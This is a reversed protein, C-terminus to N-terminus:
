SRSHRHSLFWDGVDASAESLIGLVPTTVRVGVALARVGMWVAFHEAAHAPDHWNVHPRPRPGESRYHTMVLAAYFIAGAVLLLQILGSFISQSNAGFM